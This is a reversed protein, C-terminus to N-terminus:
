EMANYSINGLAHNFFHSFIYSFMLLGCAIRIQRIGIGSLWAFARSQFQLLASARVVSSDFTAPAGSTMGFGVADSVRGWGFELVFPPNGTRPYGQATM